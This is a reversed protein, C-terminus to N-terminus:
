YQPDHFQSEPEPVTQPSGTSKLPPKARESARKQCSFITSRDFVDVQSPRNVHSPPRGYFYVHARNVRPPEHRTDYLAAPHRM